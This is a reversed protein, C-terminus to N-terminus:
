SVGDDPTEDRRFRANIADAKRTHDKGFAGETKSGVGKHADHSDSRVPLGREEQFKRERNGASDKDSESIAIGSYRSESENRNDIGTPGQHATGTVKSTPTKEDKLVM